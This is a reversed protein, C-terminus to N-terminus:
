PLKPRYEYCYEDSVAGKFFDAAPREAGRVFGLAEVVGVSARNRTDIEAVVLRVGHDRILHEIVRRGGERAYGRGQHAPVIMYALLATQDPEITAEFVGVYPQGARLRAAWNLWIYQGDPAHRAVLRRYRAALTDVSTPPEQPIYPIYSYLREDQLLPYLSQAHAVVLPELLLRTSTLPVDQPDSM